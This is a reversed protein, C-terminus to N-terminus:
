SRRVSQLKSMDQVLIVSIVQLFEDLYPNMRNIVTIEHNERELYFRSVFGAKGNEAPQINGVVVIHGIKERLNTLRPEHCKQTCKVFIEASYNESQFLEFRYEKFYNLEFEQRYIVNMLLQITNLNILVVEKCYANTRIEPEKVLVGIIDYLCNKDLESGFLTLYSFYM